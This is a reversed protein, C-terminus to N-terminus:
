APFQREPSHQETKSWTSTGGHNNTQLELQMQLSRGHSFLIHVNRAIGNKQPGEADAMVDVRNICTVHVKVMKQGSFEARIQGLVHCYKAPLAPCKNHNQHGNRQMELDNYQLIQGSALSIEDHFYFATPVVTKSCSSAEHANPWLHDASLQPHFNPALKWMWVELWTTLEPQKGGSTQIHLAQAV